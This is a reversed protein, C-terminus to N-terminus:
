VPFPCQAWNIREGRQQGSGCATPLVVLCSAWKSGCDSLKECQALESPMSGGRQRQLPNVSPSEKVVWSCWEEAGLCWNLHGTAPSYVSFSTSSAPEPFSSAFFSLAYLHLGLLSNAHWTDDSKAQYGRKRQLQKCKRHSKGTSYSTVRPGEPYLVTIGRELGEARACGAPSVKWLLM